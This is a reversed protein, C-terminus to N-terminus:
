NNLLKYLYLIIILFVELRLEGNVTLLASTSITSASNTASCTYNGAHYGLTHEIALSSSFENMQSIRIDNDGAALPLDDKYWRLSVPMDGALVLCLAQSRLGSRTGGMFALPALQPPVLLFFM